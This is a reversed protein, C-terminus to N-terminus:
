VRIRANRTRKVGIKVINDISKFSFITVKNSKM